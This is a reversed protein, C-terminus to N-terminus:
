LSALYRVRIEFLKYLGSVLSKDQWKYLPHGWIQRGFHSKAGKLVGSVRRLEGDKEVDFLHQYEWVLPSNLGLYFPMDGILLIDYKQARVQLMQYALHLQTQLMLQGGIQPALRKQFYSIASKERKRIETPWRSWDDTGFHDRLACFLTYGHVWYKNNKIFTKIEIETPIPSDSALYRPDLGIGYGKYPSPVHKTKSGKQLQTEHLPLVQWATQGSKALWDVFIEGAAFTGQPATHSVLATM